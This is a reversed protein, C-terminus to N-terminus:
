AGRPPRSLAASARCHLITFKGQLILALGPWRFRERTVELGTDIGNVMGLGISQISTVLKTSGIKQLCVSLAVRAQGVGGSILLLRVIQKSRKAKIM